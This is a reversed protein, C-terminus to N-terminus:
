DAEVASPSPLLLEVPSLSPALVASLVSRSSRRALSWDATSVV